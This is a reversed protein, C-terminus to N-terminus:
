AANAHKGILARWEAWFLAWGNRDFDDDIEAKPTSLAYFAEIQKAFKIVAAHWALIDVTASAEGRAIRVHGNPLHEVSLEIGLGCGLLVLAGNEGAPWANFACCPLLLNSNTVSNTPTHSSELTRLLFFAAGSLTLEGDQATVLDAGNVTIVMESHACQDLADDTEGKIWRLNLAQITVM